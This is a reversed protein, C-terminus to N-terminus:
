RGLALLARGLLPSADARYTHVCYTHLIGIAETDGPGAMGHRRSLWDGQGHPNEVRGGDLSSGKCSESHFVEPVADTHFNIVPALVLTLDLM